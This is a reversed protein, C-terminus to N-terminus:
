TPLNLGYAKSPMKLDKTIRQPQIQVVLSCQFLIGCCANCNGLPSNTTTRVSAFFGRVGKLYGVNHRPGRLVFTQAPSPRLPFCKGQKPTAYDSSMKRQHGLVIDLAQVIFFSDEHAEREQVNSALDDLLDSLCVERTQKLTMQFRGTGTHPKDENEAVCSFVGTQMEDSGLRKSSILMKSFDTAIKSKVHEFKSTRLACRIVQVLKKGEPVNLVRNSQASDEFNKPPFAEFSMDYIHLVLDPDLFRMKFYNAWLSVPNKNNAVGYDPRNAFQGHLPDGM